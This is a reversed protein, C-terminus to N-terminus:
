ELGARLGEFIYSMSTAGPDPHGLTREGQHKARGVRAVMEKTAEAGERAATAARGFAEVLSLGEDAASRLAETAPVLADMMTKDGPKAKTQKRLSTLGAEFMSAWADVDLEERGKAEDAMGMFLLGLLPGTAGCDLGLFAWSATKLVEAIKEEEAGQISEELQAAARM